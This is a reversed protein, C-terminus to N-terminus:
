ERPDSQPRLAGVPIAIPLTNTKPPLPCLTHPNYACPPNYARNFDLQFTNGAPTPISLFRGGPWTQQGTTQDRFIIFLTEPTDALAQLKYTQGAFEFEVIGALPQSLSQGRVNQIQLEDGANAPIFRAPLNWEANPPFWREGPFETIRPAKSDRVRVALRGARRIYQLSVSGIQLRDSSDAEPAPDDLSLTGSPTPVSNKLLSVGSAASFSLSGNKLLLTGALPPAAADSLRIACDAGSGFTSSGDKLWHLGAVALWGDPSRLQKERSARFSELQTLWDDPSQTPQILAAFPLVVTFLLLINYSMFQSTHFHTPHSPPFAALTM